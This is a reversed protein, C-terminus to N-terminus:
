PKVPMVMSFSGSASAAATAYFLSYNEDRCITQRSISHIVIVM